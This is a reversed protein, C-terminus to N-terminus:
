AVTLLASTASARACTVSPSPTRTFSPNHVPNQVHFIINVHITLVIGVAHM